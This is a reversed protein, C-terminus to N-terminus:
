YKPTGDNYLIWTGTQGNSSIFTVNLFKKVESYPTPHRKNQVMRRPHFGNKGSIRTEFYM